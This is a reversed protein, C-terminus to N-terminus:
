GQSPSDGADRNLLSARNKDNKHFEDLYKAVTIRPARQNIYAAAQSIALPMYDLAQLLKIADTEDFKGLLKKGFLLLAPDKDMPEVKIIGHYGRTLGLAAVESRSTVLISGNATQPLFTSLSVAGGVLDDTRLSGKRPDLFITSDDANDLIMIWPGNEEDCLWNSVLQLINAKPEDWGPLKIRNAITRYGEEFRAANSAHVWFIWTQPFQEKLRYSYEIAIQSKRFYM